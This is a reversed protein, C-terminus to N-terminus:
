KGRVWGWFRRFTETEIIRISTWIITVLAAVAPLWGAITGIVIGISAGDAVTKVTHATSEHM